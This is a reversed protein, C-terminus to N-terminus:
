QWYYEIKVFKLHVIFWLELAYMISAVLLNILMEENEYVLTLNQFQIWFWKNWM